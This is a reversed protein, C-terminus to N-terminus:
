KGNTFEVGSFSTNAKEAGIFIAGCGSGTEIERANGADGHRPIQHLEGVCLM